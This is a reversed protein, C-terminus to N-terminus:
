NVISLRERARHVPIAPLVFPVVRLSCSGVECRTGRVKWKKHMKGSHTVLGLHASFSSRERCTALETGVIKSFLHQM